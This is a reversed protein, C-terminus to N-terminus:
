SAKPGPRGFASKADGQNEDTVWTRRCYTDRIREFPITTGGPTIIRGGTKEFIVTAGTDCIQSVSDLAVTVDAVSYKMAVQQGNDHWGRVERTGIVPVRKNTATRFGTGTGAGLDKCPFQPGFERPCVSRSAGSDLYSTLAVRGGVQTKEMRHLSGESQELLGIRLDEEEKETSLDKADVHM